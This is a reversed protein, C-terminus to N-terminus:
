KDKGRRIEEMTSERWRLEKEIDKAMTILTDVTSWFSNRVARQIDEKKEDLIEELEDITARNLWERFYEGM